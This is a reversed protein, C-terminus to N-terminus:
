TRGRGGHFRHLRRVAATYDPNRAFEALEAGTPERLTVGLLPHMVVVSVEGCRFCIAYDGDEPARTDPLNPAREGLADMPYGCARCNVKRPGRWVGDDVPRLPGTVRM